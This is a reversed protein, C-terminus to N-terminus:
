NLRALQKYAEIDELQRIIPERCVPCTYSQKTWESLCSKHFIHSKDCQLEVVNNGLEFKVLCISCDHGLSIKNDECM